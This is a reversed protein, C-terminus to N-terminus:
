SGKSQGGNGKKEERAREREGELSIREIGTMERKGMCRQLCQAVLKVKEVMRQQSGHQKKDVVPLIEWQSERPSGM